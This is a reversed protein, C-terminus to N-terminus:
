SVGVMRNFVACSHHTSGHSHAPAVRTGLLGVAAGSCWEGGDLSIGRGFERGDIVYVSKKRKERPQRWGHEQVQEAQKRAACGLEVAPLVVRAPTIGVARVVVRERERVANKTKIAVGSGHGANWFITNTGTPINATRVKGGYACLRCLGNVDCTCMNVRCLHADGIRCGALRDLLDRLKATSRKEAEAARQM